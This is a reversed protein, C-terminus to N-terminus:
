SVAAIMLVTFSVKAKQVQIFLSRLLTGTVASKVPSKIDQEYLELVSTLDGRRIKTTLETLQEGNYNLKDQALSLVM